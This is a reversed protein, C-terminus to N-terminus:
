MYDKANPNAERLRKNIIKVIVERDDYSMGWVSNWEVGGKM